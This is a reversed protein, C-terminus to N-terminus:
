VTELAEPREVVQQDGDGLGSAEPTLWGLYHVMLAGTFPARLQVDFRFRGDQEFERAISQPLLVKPLPLPGIRGALVPFHLQGDSVHLGLTFTLPGFRETMHDNDTKLFSWFAKGGFRRVWLEGGDKPTMAVSVDIDDSAPPFGFLGALFRSWLSTGRLVRARGVWRRPGYVAHGAQVAPSLHDFSNGLFQPFMPRIPEEIIETEVALDTMAAEIEALSAVAVAPRAGMAIEQPARLLARAAVAPIFPGEGERAILRWSRTRWGDPFRATVAVSMGGEDTGFSELRKAIWLLPTVLWEPTAFGLKARLWAYGALAWNMVGLELGARFLVTRAGFADAFLRQDPVAMMWARRRIGQGLDFVEPASWCRVAAGAGDIPVDMPLGCQHLISHVVSRGRPARNGPLIAASITDIQSADKALEAVAASSIAPVSSVGSLAFVGAAKAADDLVSIGVCFAADDALDLYHVGQSICAQVLRYPADAYAHFPGAADVVVDPSVSWLASLDGQRDIYLSQAGVNQAFADAKAQSRGAVVVDHGDHVLLRVLRAGFVGYGGLVVIKM